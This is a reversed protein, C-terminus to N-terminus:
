LSQSNPFRRLNCLYVIHSEVLRSNDNFRFLVFGDVQDAVANKPKGTKDGNIIECYCKTTVVGPSPINGVPTTIIMKYQTGASLGEVLFSLPTGLFQLPRSKSNVKVELDGANGAVSYLEFSSNFVAGTVVTVNFRTQEIEADPVVFYASTANCKGYGRPTSTLNTDPNVFGKLGFFLMFIIVSTLCISQNSKPLQTDIV